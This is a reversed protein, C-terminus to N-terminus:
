DKGQGKELKEGILAEFNKKEDKTLEHMTGFEERLRWKGRYRKGILALQDPHKVYWDVMSEIKRNAMGSELEMEKILIDMKKDLIISKAKRDAEEFAQVIDKDPITVEIYEPVYRRYRGNPYVLYGRLKRKRLKPKELDRDDKWMVNIYLRAKRGQPRYVKIYLNLTYRMDTTIDRIFQSIIIFVMRKISRSQANVDAVAQAIFSQWNKARVVDRAEHLAIVNVKKLHKEYLLRKLKQPYELPTYVNIDHLYKRIDIGQLALIVEQLKLGGSISKGEGSDGSVFIVAPKKNKIRNNLIVSKIIKYGVDEMSDKSPDYRVVFDALPM